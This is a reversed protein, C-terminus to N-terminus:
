LNKYVCRGDVFTYRIDLGESLVALDAAKGVAISGTELEIGLAKAPNLATMEAIEWLPIGLTHLNRVGMLLNGASGCITGDDLWGVGREVRYHRGDQEYNGDPLGACFESDSIATFRSSGKIKYILEVAAPHLHTFDCIVECTVRPDCLAAALVGPDRHNIPRAANFTHTMRTVGADIGACMEEYTADTHGASVAVGANVAAKIVDLSGPLEPAITLLRMEGECVDYMWQFDELTPKRLYQQVMGGKRKPNLFPGEAHIGGIRAGETGQRMLELVKKASAEFREVSSTPLGAAVTTVGKTVEFATIKNIDDEPKFYVEGMAGHTHTDIFGPMLYAGKLPLVQEGEIPQIHAEIAAIRGDTVRVDRRPIQGPLVVRANQLLISNTQNM